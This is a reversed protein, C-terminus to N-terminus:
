MYRIYPIKIWVSRFSTICKKIYLDTRSSNCTNQQVLKSCLIAVENVTKVFIIGDNTKYLESQEFQIQSPSIM